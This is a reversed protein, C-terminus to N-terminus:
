KLRKHLITETEDISTNIKDTCGILMLTVCVFVPLLIKKM